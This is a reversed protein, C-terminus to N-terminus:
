SLTIRSASPRRMRSPRLAMLRALYEARTERDLGIVIAGAIYILIVLTCEPLVVRLPQLGPLMQRLAITALAAPLVGGVAPGFMRRVGTALTLGVSRCALPLFVGLHGIALPIATGVAVGTLGFRGVLAVSLGLNAVSEAVWVGAVLRQWGLAILVKNMPAFAVVIATASALAVLAGVSDEFGPGMWGQILADGFGILCVAAATGFLSTLRTGAIMADRLGQTDGRVGMRVVVPFLMGSFQDCFRRQYESLRLAVTYIAVATTSMAAGIVLNDINFGIQMAIDIVFMWISFTTVERWHRTSFWRPTIRLTPCVRRASAAYGAYGLLNVATTASVLAVLGYGARLVAYTAVANAAVIAIAVINNLVFGHRANTVAGFVTMPFGVAVRVALIALVARALAVDDPSLHPFRPVVWVLLGAAVVLALAGIGAYVCVFTSAIRNVEMPDGHADAEVLHRVVGNGYGVDLLQFYATMSAVLMWLGYQARGLHAVTFPMLFAGTGISLILLAYKTATGAILSHVPRSDTM